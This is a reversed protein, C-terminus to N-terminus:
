EEFACSRSLDVNFRKSRVTSRRWEGGRGDGGDCRTGLVVDVVVVVVGKVIVGGVVGVENDTYKSVFLAVKVFM